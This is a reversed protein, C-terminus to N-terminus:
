SQGRYLVDPDEDDVALRGEEVATAVIDDVQGPDIGYADNAIEEITGRRVPFTRNEMLRMVKGYGPPKGQGMRLTDRAAQREESVGSRPRDARDTSDAPADEAADTSGADTRGRERASGDGNGEGGTAAGSQEAGRSAGSPPSADSPGSPASSGTRGGAGGAGGAGASRPAGTSGGDIRSVLPDIVTRLKEFCTPCLAVSRQEDETPDFRSPVVAYRDVDDAAGCFYCSELNAM